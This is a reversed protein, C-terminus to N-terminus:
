DREWPLKSSQQPNEGGKDGLFQKGFWQAGMEVIIDELKRKGGVKGIGFGAKIGNGIFGGVMYLKKQGEETSSLYELMIDGTKMIKEDSFMYKNAVWLATLSGLLGSVGGLVCYLVIEVIEM